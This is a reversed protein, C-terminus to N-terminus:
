YEFSGNISWSAETLDSNFNGQLDLQGRANSYIGTGGTIMLVARMNKHGPTDSPSLTLRESTTITNGDGFDLRHSSAASESGDDVQVFSEAVTLNVTVRRSEGNLDFNTVGTYQRKSEDGHSNGTGSIEARTGDGPVGMTVATIAVVHPTFAALCLFIISVVHSISRRM